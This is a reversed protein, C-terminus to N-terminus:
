RAVVGVPAAPRAHSSRRTKAITPVAFQLAAPVPLLAGEKPPATSARQRLPRRRRELPGAISEPPLDQEATLFRTLGGEYPVVVMHRFRRSSADM